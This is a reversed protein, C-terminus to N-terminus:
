WEAILIPNIANETFRSINDYTFLGECDRNDAIEQEDSGWWHSIAVGRDNVLWCKDGSSPHRRDIARYLKTM